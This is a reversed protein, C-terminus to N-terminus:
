KTIKFGLSKLRQSPPKEQFLQTRLKVQDSKYQEVLKAVEPTDVGALQKIFGDLEDLRKKVTSEAGADGERQEAGATPAASEPPKAKAQKLQSTLSQVQKQM